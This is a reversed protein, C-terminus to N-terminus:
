ATGLAGSTVFASLSSDSNEVSCPTASCMSISMVGPLAFNSPRATSVICKPLRNRDPASEDTVCYRRTLRRDPARRGPERAARSVDRDIRALADHRRLARGRAAALRAGPGAARAPEVQLRAGVAHPLQAAPYLRPFPLTRR